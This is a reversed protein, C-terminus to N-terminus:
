MNPRSLECNLVKELTNIVNLSDLQKSEILENARIIIFDKSGSSSNKIRNEIEVSSMKFLDNINEPCLLNKYFSKVQLFDLIDEVSFENNYESEVFGDIVVWNKEFFKRYTNRMVLLEDLSLYQPTNTDDWEIQFGTKKSKYVLQGFCNSRVLVSTTLPLNKISTKVKKDVVKEVKSDLSKINSETEALKKAERQEKTYGM